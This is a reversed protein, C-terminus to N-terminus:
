TVERTYATRDLIDAAVTHGPNSLAHRRADARVATPTVHHGARRSFTCRDQTCYAHLHYKVRTESVSNM